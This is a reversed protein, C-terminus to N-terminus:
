TQLSRTAAALGSRRNRASIRNWERTRERNAKTRDRWERNSRVSAEICKERNDQFHRKRAENECARCVAHFQRYESPLKPM